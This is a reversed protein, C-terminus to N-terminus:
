VRDFTHVGNQKGLYIFLGGQVVTEPSWGPVATWIALRGGPKLVRHMEPLLRNLPLTPSPVVGFLLALDTVGSPLGMNLANAQFVRANSLGAAALKRTVTDVAAQTIDLAYLYGQPGLTKMLPLTFFGRGCGAELVTLGARVGAGQIIQQPDWIRERAPSDSAFVKLLADAVRYKLTGWM